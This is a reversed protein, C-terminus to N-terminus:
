DVRAGDSDSQGDQDGLAKNIIDRIAILAGRFTERESAIVSVAELAADLKIDVRSQMIPAVIESRERSKKAVLYLLRRGQRKKTIQKKVALGYLVNGIAKKGLEGGFHEYLEEVGIPADQAILVDFVRDIQSM